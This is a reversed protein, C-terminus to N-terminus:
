INVCNLIYEKKEQLNNILFKQYETVRDYNILCILEINSILEYVNKSLKKKALGIQQCKKRIAQVFHFMCRLHILDKSFFECHKIAKALSIEYDTHIVLPNFGYNEYLYKFVRYYSISDLFKILIFGILLTKKEKYDITAIIM